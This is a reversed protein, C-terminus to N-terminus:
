KEFIMLDDKFSKFELANGSPDKIFLTSQEGKLGKFRTQPKILFNVDLKLLKDKLQKWEEKNLIVGFHKVPVNNGDVENLEGNIIKKSHHAVIQHGFFDFDIWDSSERGVTCGLIKCYWDRAEELNYVPFALHFPRIKKNM